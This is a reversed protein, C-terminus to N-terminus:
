FFLLECGFSFVDVRHLREFFCIEYGFSSVDVRHLREFSCFNVVLVSFM